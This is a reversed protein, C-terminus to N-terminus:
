LHLNDTACWYHDADGMQVMVGFIVKLDCANAIKGDIIFACM